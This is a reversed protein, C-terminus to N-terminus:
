SKKLPNGNEDQSSAFSDDPMQQAACDNVDELKM